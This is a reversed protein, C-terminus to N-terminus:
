NQSKQKSLTQIQWNAKKLKTEGDAFPLLWKQRM